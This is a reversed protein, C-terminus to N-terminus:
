YHAPDVREWTGACGLQATDLSSERHRQLCSARIGADYGPKGDHRHDGGPAPRGAGRGVLAGGQDRVGALLGVVLDVEIRERRRVDAARAGDELRKEEVVDDAVVLRRRAQALL